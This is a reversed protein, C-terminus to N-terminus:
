RCFFFIKTLWSYLAVACCMEAEGLNIYTLTSLQGVETPITGTLGNNETSSPMMVFLLVIYDAVCGIICCFCLVNETEGLLLYNLSTLGGIETPITGHLQNGDTM